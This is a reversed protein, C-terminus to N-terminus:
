EWIKVEFTGKSDAVGRFMSETNYEASYNGDKDLAIIGGSGKPLREQIMLKAADKLSMNKYEMLASVNYAVTNKIFLEGKGTASVACTKNNAYTGANVLPSDGIRGPMKGGMGGTTTAAALNGETDLAVCGITGQGKSINQQQWRKLQEPTHFYDNEVFTVKMQRGFEEAGEGHFLVHPSKEMVLRALSIPNKIHKVGAVAGCSLDIGSMISADLEHTGASTFVAGKGANFNPNDELYLAVKEVAELATGGDELITRGITLAETLSNIYVEKLSDSINRNTMGAGGHLVIAYKKEKPEPTGKLDVFQTALIILFTIVVLIIGKM